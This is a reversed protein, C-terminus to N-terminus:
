EESARCTKCLGYIISNKCRISFGHDDEAHHKLEDMFECDLHVIAGCQICQLHLHDECHHEPEVYQYVAQNGDEATYKMVQGENTLRDLCRYVTTVNVVLGNEHLHLLIDHACVSRDANKHLYEIIRSKSVTNYNGAM